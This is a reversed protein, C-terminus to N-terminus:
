AYIIWDNLCVDFCYPFHHLLLFNKNDTWRSICYITKSIKWGKYSDVRKNEYDKSSRYIDVRPRLSGKRQMIDIM